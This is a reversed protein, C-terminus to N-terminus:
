GRYAWYKVEVSESYTHGTDYEYFEAYFDGDEYTCLTIADVVAVEEGNEPLADEISVWQNHFLSDYLMRVDDVSLYIGTNNKCADKIRQQVTLEVM